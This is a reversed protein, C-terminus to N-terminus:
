LICDEMKEEEEAGIREAIEPYQKELYNWIEGYRRYAVRFLQYDNITVDVGGDTHILEIINQSCTVDLIMLVELEYASMAHIGEPSKDKNYEVFTKRQTKNIPRVIAIMPGEGYGAFMAFPMYVNVPSGENESPVIVPRMEEFLLDDKTRHDSQLYVIGLGANVDVLCNSKKRKM